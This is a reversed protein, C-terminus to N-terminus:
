VSLEKTSMRGTVKSLHRSALSEDLFAAELPLQLRFMRRTSFSRTSHAPRVRALGPNTPKDSM